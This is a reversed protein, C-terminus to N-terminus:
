TTQLQGFYFSGLLLLKLAVVMDEVEVEAAFNARGANRFINVLALIVM